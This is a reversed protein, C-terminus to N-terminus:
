FTLRVGATPDINNTRAYGGALGGRVQSWMAGGYVDFHPMVNYVAALSLADLNGSCKGSLTTAGASSSCSGGANYNNQAYGYYAGILDLKDTAAYKVGTWYIQLIRNSAFASNNVPGLRYGGIDVAGDALPRSPNAFSVHEYGGFIKAPGWTYRGMLALSSNDSVTADVTGPNTAPEPALSIADRKHSYLADLSLNHYDGGLDVEEASGGDIPAKGIEPQSGGIQFQAGLRVPGFTKLYKFSDDLRADQTDGVGATVGSFGVLSFAYAGGQPDNAVVADLLLGNQRGFTLTGYDDSQVGVYASGNFIQGARSGDGNTSQYGAGIGNNAQVSRPADALRLALPDFGTDFKAVFAYGDMFPETAKVGIISQSLGNNTFGTVTHNSSRQVLYDMGTYFNKSYGAGHSEYSVGVDVTGYLTIGHWTLSNDAPGPPPSSAQTQVSSPTEGAGGGTQDAAQAPAMGFVAVMAVAATMTALSKARRAGIEQMKECQCM